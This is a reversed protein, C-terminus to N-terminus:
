QAGECDGIVVGHHTQLREASQHGHSVLVADVGLEQAVELDHLTDGVIVTRHTPVRSVRLLERGREVKSAAMKNNIGFANNFIERLGFNSIMHDLNDQDTASLVSQEIGLRKLERATQESEVFLELDTVGAMFGDVFRHCLSEFSEKAYDFGLVDYYKRVPFDFIQQYRHKDLSPLAHSALLGNMTKVAHDVDNLLTGNWDWIVHDKGKLHQLLNLTKAM